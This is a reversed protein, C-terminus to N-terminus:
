ANDFRPKGQQGVQQVTPRRVSWVLKGVVHQRREAPELPGIEPQKCLEIRGTQHRRSSCVGTGVSLFKRCPRQRHWIGLRPEILRYVQAGTVLIEHLRHLTGLQCMPEDVFEVIRLQHQQLGHPQAHM